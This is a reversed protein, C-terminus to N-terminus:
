RGAPLWEQFSIELPYHKQLADFLADAQAVVLYCSAGFHRYAFRLARPLHERCTAIMVEQGDYRMPLVRFQWAQRKTITSLVTPDILERRPDVSATILAYQESWAAELDSPDVGFHEEALVGLPERRTQQLKLLQSLQGATLAGREVLLEGLRRAM